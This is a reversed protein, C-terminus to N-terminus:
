KFTILFGDRDNEEVGHNVKLSNSELGSSFLKSKRTLM